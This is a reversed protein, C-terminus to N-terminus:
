RTIKRALWGAYFRWNAPRWFKMKNRLARTKKRFMAREADLLKQTELLQAQVKAVERRNIRAPVQKLFRANATKAIEARPDVKELRMQRTEVALEFRNEIYAKRTPHWPASETSIVRFGARYFLMHWTDVPLCSFHTHFWLWKPNYQPVIVFLKGDDKLLQNYSWLQFLPILSHELTHRTTIFDLSRESFHDLVNFMDDQISKPFDVPAGFDYFTVDVGKDALRKCLYETGGVDVGTSGPQIREVMWECSQAKTDSFGYSVFPATENLEKRFRDFAATPRAEPNQRTTDVAVTKEGAEDSSICPRSKEAIPPTAEEQRGCEGGLPPM